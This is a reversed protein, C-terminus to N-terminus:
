HIYNKEQNNKQTGFNKKKKNKKTKQSKQWRTPQNEIIKRNLMHRCTHETNM